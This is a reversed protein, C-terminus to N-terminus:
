RSLLILSVIGFAACYIAFPDLRGVRFYRMLYAVSLFAAVGAAVGGLLYVPLHPRAVPTFLDPIKLVGAGFIIPTALLFAFRAAAEHTLNALLGAVMTSGSRSIGPLLALIQASGIGVATRVPLGDLRTRGVDAAVARRRIREGGFMIVGNVILFAAAARPNAFLSQVPKQFLVGVVGAPVTGAILRWGLRENATGHMRGDIVSRLVSGAIALWDRWFYILLATATGVHLLVVYALFTPDAQNINWGLLKPLIVTHGLSSVPFLETVGQLLALVLAQFVSM